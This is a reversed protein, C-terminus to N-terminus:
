VTGELDDRMAAGSRTIRAFVLVGMATLVQFYPTTWVGTWTGVNLPAETTLTSLLATRATTEVARAALSGILLWWGLLRLRGATWLTYVGDRASVSLLRNLILLAGTMLVFSPFGALFSLTQQYTGPDDACYRPVTDVQVGAKPHLGMSAESTTSSIWDTSVCADSGGWEFHVDTDFLSLALSLVMFGLLVRVVISVVSSLPELLRSDDAM